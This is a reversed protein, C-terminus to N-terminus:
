CVGCVLCEFWVCECVPCFCAGFEYVVFVGCLYVCVACDVYMM